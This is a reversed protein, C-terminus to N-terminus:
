VAEIRSFEMECRWKSTMYVQADEPNKMVRRETAELKKTAQSKNDASPCSGKEVSVVVHM